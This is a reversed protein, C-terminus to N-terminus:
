GTALSELQSVRYRLDLWVSGDVKPPLTKYKSVLERDPLLGTELAMSRIQLTIVITLPKKMGSQALLTKSFAITTEIFTLTDITSPPTRAGTSSARLM